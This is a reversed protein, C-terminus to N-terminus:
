FTLGRASAIQALNEYEQELQLMKNKADARLAMYKEVLIPMVGRKDKTYIAGAPTVIYKEDVDINVNALFDVIGLGCNGM